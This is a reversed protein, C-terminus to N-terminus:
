SYLRCHLDRSDKSAIAGTCLSGLSRACPETCFLNGQIISARAHLFGISCDGIYGSDIGVCDGQITWDGIYTRDIGVHGGPYKESLEWTQILRACRSVKGPM